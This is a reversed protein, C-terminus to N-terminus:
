HENDLRSEFTKADTIDYVLLIGMAGRYYAANHPPSPCCCVRTLTAQRSPTPRSVRADGCM